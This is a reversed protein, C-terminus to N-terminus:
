TEIQFRRRDLAVAHDLDAHTTVPYIPQAHAADWVARAHVPDYPAATMRAQEVAVSEGRKPALARMASATDAVRLLIDCATRCVFRWGRATIAVHWDTGDYAGDGVIIVAADAPVLLALHELLVCHLAEPLHGTHGPAAM